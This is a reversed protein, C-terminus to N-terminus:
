FDDSDKENDKLPFYCNMLGALKKLYIQYSYYFVLEDSTFKGLRDVFVSFTFFFILAIKTILLPDTAEKHFKKEDFEM